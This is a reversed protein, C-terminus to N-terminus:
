RCALKEIADLALYIIGSNVFWNIFFDIALSILFVFFMNQYVKFDM